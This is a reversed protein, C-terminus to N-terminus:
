NFHPQFTTRIWEAWMDLGARRAPDAPWFAGDGYRAALYRLIAQSEWLTLDGDQLTPVRRNPNLAGYEETDLGGYSHGVDIRRAELGLEAVAWMVVQVNSSTARGWVTLTM